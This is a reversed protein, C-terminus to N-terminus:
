SIFGVYALLAAGLIRSLLAEPAQFMLLSGLV